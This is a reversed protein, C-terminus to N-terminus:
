REKGGREKRLGLDLERGGLRAGRRRRGLLRRMRGGRRAEVSRLCWGRRSMWSNWMAM